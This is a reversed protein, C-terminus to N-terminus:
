QPTVEVPPKATVVTVLSWIWAIVILPIGIISLIGTMTLIVGGAFMLLQIIGTGAAGAIMSGIGPLFFNVIFGIVKM